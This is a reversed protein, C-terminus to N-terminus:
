SQFDLDIYRLYARSAWDGLIQLSEGTLKCKHVWMLGGRRLCHPTLRKDTIGAKKSWEKLLRGVQGTTLPNCGDKDRVLFLPEHDAAPIIRIMRQMWTHPCIRKDQSPVILAWLIKNRFQITKSWRVGLTWIGEKLVLDSRLFHQHSNFDKRAAPGINSVRLILTFAVLVAM